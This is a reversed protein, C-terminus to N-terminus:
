TVQKRGDTQLWINHNNKHRILHEILHYKKYRKIYNYFNEANNRFDTLYKYKSIEKKVIDDNLFLRKRKLCDLLYDLKNRKTQM